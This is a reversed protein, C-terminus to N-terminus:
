PNTTRVLSEDGDGDEDGIDMNGVTDNCYTFMVRM